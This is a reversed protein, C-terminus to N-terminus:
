SSALRLAAKHAAGGAGRTLGDRARAVVRASYGAVSGNAEVTSLSVEGVGDVDANAVRKDELVIGPVIWVTECDLRRTALHQEVDLSAVWRNERDYFRGRARARQAFIVLGERVAM